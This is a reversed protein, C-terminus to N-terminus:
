YVLTKRMNMETAPSLNAALRGTYTPRLICEDQVSLELKRSRFEQEDAANWNGNVVM